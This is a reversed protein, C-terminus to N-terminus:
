KIKPEFPQVIVWELVDIPATLEIEIESVADEKQKQPKVKGIPLGPPYLKSLNSTVIQDGPKIDIVEEFFHMVVSSAKEGQVYGLQRSRSIVAGVRSTDDSILLVKSTHPTVSTVRGVLGGIGSVVFGPKINDQSGKGLTVQEWWRDRSRSIVPASITKTTQTSSYNLLQKLQKNQQELETERQELELIRANTLRDELTLQKQSQFPSVMFYYIESVIAAQTQRILLAIILAVIVITTRFGFKDWWRDM